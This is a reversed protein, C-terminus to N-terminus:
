SWQDIAAATIPCHNSWMNVNVNTPTPLEFSQNELTYKISVFKLLLFWFLFGVLHTKVWASGKNGYNKIFDFSAFHWHKHQYKCM